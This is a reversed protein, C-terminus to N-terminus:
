QPDRDDIEAPDLNRWAPGRMSGPRAAFHTRAMKFEGNVTLGSFQSRKVEGFPTYTQLNNGDQVLLTNKDVPVLSRIGSRVPITLTRVRSFDGRPDLNRHFVQVSGDGKRGTFVSGDGAIKFVVPGAGQQVAPVEVEASRLLDEDLVIMKDLSRAFVAPGGSIPDYELAVGATALPRLRVQNTDRDLRAIWSESHAGQEKDGIVYLAATSGGVMLAKAGKLVHVLKQEGTTLDVRFIRGLHTVYYAALEGHEFVWDVLRERPVFSCERPSDVGEFQWPIIVKVAPEEKVHPGAVGALSAANGSSGVDSWGGYAPLIAHMKDIVYRRHGDPGNNLSYRAHTRVGDWTTLTINKTGRVDTDFDSQQYLDDDGRAPNRTFLKMPDGTYDYGAFAMYHGGDRYWYNGLLASETYYYRGYGIAMLCGNYHMKALTGTGWNFDPGLFFHFMLVGGSRDAIFDTMYYFADEADTGDEPDTDLHDEDGLTFVRDRIDHSENSAPAWFSFENLGKNNLFYLLDLYTTPVCFMKGDNHGSAGWKQDYDGLGTRLGFPPAQGKVATPALLLGAFLASAAAARLAKMGSGAVRRFRNHPKSATRPPQVHTNGKRRALGVAHSGAEALYQWKPRIAKDEFFAYRTPTTLTTTLNSWNQFAPQANPTSTIPLARNLCSHAYVFLTLRGAQFNPKQTGEIRLETAQWQRPQSGSLSKM